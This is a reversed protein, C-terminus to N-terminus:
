IALNKKDKKFRKYYITGRSFRCIIKQRFDDIMAINRNHLKWKFWILEDITYIGKRPIVYQECGQPLKRDNTLGCGGLYGVEIVGDIVFDNYRNFPYSIFQVPVDFQKELETKSLQLEDMLKKQSLRTLDPHTKTHSGIEWGSRILERIENHNLHVFTKRGINVDWKNKKGIYDSIIFVTATFGYRNLIPYAYEYINQYADDFTIIISDSNTNRNELYDILTVSRYGHNALYSIQKEFLRLSVTNIGWDFRNDIKHYALISINM